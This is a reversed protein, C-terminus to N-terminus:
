FKLKIFDRRTVIGIFDASTVKALAGNVIGIKDGKSISLGTDAVPMYGKFKVVGLNSPQIDQMAVGFLSNIDNNGLKLIVSGDNNLMVPTGKTIVTTEANYMIKTEENIIYTPQTGDNCDILIPVETNGSGSFDYRCGDGVSYEEFKVIGDIYCNLMDVKERQGSNLTIFRVGFYGGNNKFKCNEFRHYTPKSHNLNNHTSYPAQAYETIFECDKFYFEMGSGTGEGWAQSNGTGSLKIFTCNETNKIADEYAYDDHVTYRCNRGIVTLNKLDGNGMNAIPAVRLQTASSYDLPIEFKIITNEKKGNGVLSVYNPITLGKFNTNEVEEKSYILGIDYLGEEIRIEYQNIQSADLTSELASRLTVGSNAVLIKKSKPLLKDIESKDVKNEVEKVLEDISMPPVVQVSGDFWNNDYLSLLTEIEELTPEDGAGYSATLDIVITKRIKFTDGIIYYSNTPHYLKFGTNNIATVIGKITNWTDAVPNITTNVGGFATYSTNAYKPNIESKVYYKHGIVPSYVSQQVRSSAVLGTVSYILENDLTSLTGNSASVADWGSTGVFNGNTIVNELFVGSSVYSSQYIGGPLWSSGNWYYWNGDDRVIYINSNGNPYAMKLDNLTPYVNKPSGSAVANLETKSAKQVLISDSEDLREGLTQAGGRALKMENEAVGLRNGWGSLEVLAQTLATFSNQSQVATDDVVSEQVFIKFSESEIRGDPTVLVLSATLTGTNSLMGTTYYIEFIGKTADIPVFADLGQNEKFHWALSLVSGTLDEEERENLVHVILKRGNSDGESATISEYIKGTAKDWEIVQSRFDNLVM